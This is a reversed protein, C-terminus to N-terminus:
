SFIGGSVTNRKKRGTVTKARPLEANEYKKKKKTKKPTLLALRRCRERGGGGIKLKADLSRASEPPRDAVIDKFTKKFQKAGIEAVTQAGTSLAECGIPGLTESPWRL